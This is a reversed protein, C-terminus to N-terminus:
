ADISARGHFASSFFEVAQGLGHWSPTFLTGALQKNLFIVGQGISRIEKLRPFGRNFPAFDLELVPEHANDPRVLMEKFALYGAVSVPEPILQQQHISMFHWSGAGERLAMYILPPRCVAEQLLDVVEHLPTEVLSYPLEASLADFAARLDSRLLLPRELEFWRRLLAYLDSRHDAAWADFKHIM